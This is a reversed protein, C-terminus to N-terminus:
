KLAYVSYNMVGQGEIIRMEGVAVSMIRNMWLYKENGTEFRPTTHVPFVDDVAEGAFIKNSKEESMDILGPYSVHILAGDNTELVLRVDLEWVSDQRVLLWDAGFPRAVAEIKPGKVHGEAVPGIIRMGRGGDGIMMAEAVPAAKFYADYLFETKLELM